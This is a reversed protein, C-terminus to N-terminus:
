VGVYTCYYMTVLIHPSIKDLMQMLYSSVQVLSDYIYIMLLEDNREFRGSIDYLVVVVVTSDDQIRATHTHTNEEWGNQVDLENSTGAPTM